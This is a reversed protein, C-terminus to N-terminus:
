RLLELLPSRGAAPRPDPLGALAMLLPYVDVAEITGISRGAPLGPGTALFIGHMDMSEPPWGHDGATMKHAKDRRSLVGYGLDAQLLVDGMRPSDAVRWAAPAEGRLWARGHRWRANIADRLERARRPDRDRVYLVAFAGSEVIDVDDLSLFDALVLPEVDRRYRGQGHDSVVAVSVRGALPSREIGDLLEGIWGDVRRVAAACEPTAPGNEHSAVDVHEFYLTIVHPREAEPLKLWALAQEVRAEGPVSADFARWDSPAQGDVDAETGVFYFAASGIGAREAAVWVPTGAYWRGDQVTERDKYRYWRARAEDPFENAVIGHGAPYLGTAISYHNPFTLTPWVPKLSRARVGREAIRELAPSPFRDLYDHRFGDISILVLYPAAARDPAGSASAGAAPTISGVAVLWLLLTTPRLAFRM